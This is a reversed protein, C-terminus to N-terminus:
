IDVGKPSSHFILVLGIRDGQIFGLSFGHWCAFIWKGFGFFMEPIPEDTEAFSPTKRLFLEGMSDADGRAHGCIIFRFSVM